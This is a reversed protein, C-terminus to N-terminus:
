RVNTIVKRQGPLLSTKLGNKRSSMSHHFYSVYMSCQVKPSTFAYNTFVRRRGPSWTCSRAKRGLQEDMSASLRIRCEYQGITGM